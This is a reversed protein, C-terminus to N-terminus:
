TTKKEKAKDNKTKNKNEHKSQMSPRIKKANSAM